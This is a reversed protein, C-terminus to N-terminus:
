PQLKNFLSVELRQNPSNGNSAARIYYWQGPNVGIPTIWFEENMRGNRWDVLRLNGCDSGEYVALYGRPPDNVCDQPMGYCANDRFRVSIGNVLLPHATSYPAYIKYWVDKAAACDPPPLESASITAYTTIPGTIVDGYNIVTASVCEDNPATPLPAVIWSSCWDLFNFRLRPYSTSVSFRDCQTIGQVPDPSIVSWYYWAVGLIPIQSFFNLQQEMGVEVVNTGVPTQAADGSVKGVHFAGVGLFSTAYSPRRFLQMGNLSAQPSACPGEYNYVLKTSYVQDEVTLPTPSPYRIIPIKLTDLGVCGGDFIYVLASAGLSTANFHECDDELASLQSCPGCAPGIDTSSAHKIDHFPQKESFRGQVTETGNSWAVAIRNPYQSNFWAASHNPLLFSPTYPLNTVAPYAVSNDLRIGTAPVGDWANRDNGLIDKSSDTNHLYVLRDGSVFVAGDQVYAAGTRCANAAFTARSSFAHSLIGGAGNSNLTIVGAKQGQSTAYSLYFVNMKPCSAINDSDLECSALSCRRLDCMTAPVDASYTSQTSYSWTFQGAVSDYSGSYIKRVVKIKITQDGGAANAYAIATTCFKKYTGYYSYFKESYAADLIMHNNPLDYDTLALLSENSGESRADAEYCSTYYALPDESDPQVWWNVFVKARGLDHGCVVQNLMGWGPGCQINYFPRILHVFSSAADVDYSGSPPDPNQSSSDDKPVREWPGLPSTSDPNYPARYVYIRNENYNDILSARGRLFSVYVYGQICYAPTGGSISENQALPAKYFADFAWLGMTMWDTEMVSGGFSCSQNMDPYQNGTPLTFKVCTGLDDWRPDNKVVGTVVSGNSHNRGTYKLWVWAGPVDSRSDPTFVFTHKGTSVVAKQSPDHQTGGALQTPPDYAQSVVSLALFVPLWALYRGASTFTRM